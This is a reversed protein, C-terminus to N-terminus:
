EPASQTHHRGDDGADHYGSIAGTASQSSKRRDSGCVAVGRTTAIVPLAADRLSALEDVVSERKLELGVRQAGRVSRPTRRKWRVVSPSPSFSRVLANRMLAHLFGTGRARSPVGGQRAARRPTYLWSRVAEASAAPLCGVPAQMFRSSDSAGACM